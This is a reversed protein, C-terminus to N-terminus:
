AAEALSLFGVTNSADALVSFDFEPVEWDELKTALSLKSSVCANLQLNAVKGNYTQFLNMQFNPQSGLLQNTIAIKGSGALTQTWTYSTLIAAGADAAAFTYTGTAEDVSYQGQAPAAAVKKLAIGTAAYKVGLDGVFTAANAVVVTYPGAAAPVAGAEDFATALMTGETLTQGFFVDNYQRARMQAFKAKGTWKATGRAIAVPFQYMGFLEKMNFSMDISIDQLVGFQSPTYVGSDTRKGWLVGSGFQVEM